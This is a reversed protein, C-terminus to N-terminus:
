HQPKPELEGTEPNVWVHDISLDQLSDVWGTSDCVQTIMAPVRASVRAVIEGQANYFYRYTM